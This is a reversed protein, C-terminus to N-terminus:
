LQWVGQLGHQWSHCGGVNQDGELVLCLICMHLILQAGSYHRYASPYSFLQKLLNSKPATIGGLAGVFALCVHWTFGGKLSMIDNFLKRKEKKLPVLRSDADRVSADLKRTKDQLVVLYKRVRTIKANSYEQLDSADQKLDVWEQKAKGLKERVRQVAEVFAPTYMRRRGVSPSGVGSRGPSASHSSQPSRVESPSQVGPSLNAVTHRRVHLPPPRFDSSDEGPNGSNGRDVSNTRDWHHAGMQGSSASRGLNPAPPPVNVRLTGKPVAYGQSSSYSM